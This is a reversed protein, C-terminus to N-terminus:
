GGRGLRPHQSPSLRVNSRSDGGAPALKREVQVKRTFSGHELSLNWGGEEAGGVWLLSQSYVRVRGGRGGFRSRRQGQGGCRGMREPVAAAAAAAAVTKPVGEM